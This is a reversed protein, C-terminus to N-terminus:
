VTGGALADFRKGDGIPNPSFAVIRPQTEGDVTVDSFRLAMLLGGGGVANYPILRLGKVKGSAVIEVPHLLEFPSLGLLRSGVWPSVILVSEGTVPDRLLNGNDRLAQLRVEKGKFHIYIPIIRGHTNGERGVLVLLCLLAASLTLFWGSGDTLGVAMANAVLWLFLFRGWCVWQGLGFATVGMLILVMPLLGKGIGELVFVSYLAGIGGGGACRLRSVVARDEQAAGRLLLFDVIFTFIFVLVREKDM